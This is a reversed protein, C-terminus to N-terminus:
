RGGGRGVWNGMRFGLPLALGGTLRLLYLLQLGFCHVSSFLFFLLTLLCLNPCHALSAATFQLHPKSASVCTCRESVSFCVCVCLIIVCSLAVCAAALSHIDLHSCTIMSETVRCLFLSVCVRKDGVDGSYFIYTWVDVFTIISSDNLPITQCNTPFFVFCVVTM